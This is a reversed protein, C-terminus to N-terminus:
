CLLRGEEVVTGISAEVATLRRMSTSGRLCLTSSRLLAVILKTRIYTIVDWYSDEKKDSASGAALRQKAKSASPGAEGTCQQKYITNILRNLM